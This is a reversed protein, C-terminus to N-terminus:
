KILTMKKSDVFDGSELKYIYTGSALNSADFNFKYAGAPLEKNVLTTVEQGLINFIKLTTKHAKTITFNIETTPNFPNPYNQDLKYTAPLIENDRELATPFFDGTWKYVVGGNRSCAYM